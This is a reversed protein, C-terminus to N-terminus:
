HPAVWRGRGFRLHLRLRRHDTATLADFPLIVTQGFRDGVRKFSLVAFLPLAMSSPQLTVPLWGDKRSNVHWGKADHRLATVAAGATLRIDRPVVRAMHLGCLVLGCIRAAWSIDVLLLTLLCALQLGAYLALLVRSPRWHCEFLDM